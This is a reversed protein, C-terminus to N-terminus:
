SFTKYNHIVIKMPYLIWEEKYKKEVLANPPFLEMSVSNPVVQPQARLGATRYRSEGKVRLQFFRCRLVAQALGSQALSSLHASDILFRLVERLCGGWGLFLKPAVPRLFGALLIQLLVFSAVLVIPQTQRFAQRSFARRPCGLCSSDPM